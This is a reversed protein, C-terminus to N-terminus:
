WDDHGKRPIEEEDLLFAMERDDGEGEVMPNVPVSVLVLVLVM